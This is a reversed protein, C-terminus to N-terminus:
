YNTKMLCMYVHGSEIVIEGETYKSTSGYWDSRESLIRGYRSSYYIGTRPLCQKRDLQEKTRYCYQNNSVTERVIMSNLVQRASEVSPSAATAIEIAISMFAAMTAIAMLSISKMGQWEISKRNRRKRGM